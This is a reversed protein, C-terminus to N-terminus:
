ILHLLLIVLPILAVLWLAAGLMAAMRIRRREREDLPQRLAQVAGLTALPGFFLTGLGAPMLGVVAWKLWGYLRRQTKEGPTPVEAPARDKPHTFEFQEATRLRYQSSTEGRYELRPDRKLLQAMCDYLGRRARINGPDVDLAHNFARIKGHIDPASEALGIWADANSPESETLQLWQRHAEGGVMPQTRKKTASPQTEDLHPGTSGNM